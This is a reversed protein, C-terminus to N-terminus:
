LPHSLGSNSAQKTKKMENKKKKKQSITIYNTSIKVITVINIFYMNPVHYHAQNFPLM